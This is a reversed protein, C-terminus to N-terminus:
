FVHCLVVLCYMLISFTGPTTSSYKGYHFFKQPVKDM